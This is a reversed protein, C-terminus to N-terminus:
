NNIGFKGILKDINESDFYEESYGCKSCVYRDFLASSLTSLGIMIARGSEAPINKGPVIILQSSGCKPCRNNKKM